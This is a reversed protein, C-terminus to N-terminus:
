PCRYLQSVVSAFTRQRHLQWGPRTLTTHNSAKPSEVYVLAGASLWANEALASLAREALTSNFPPDIFVIDFRRTGAINGDLWGLADQHIIDLESTNADLLDRNQRLAHFAVPNQEILTVQHAGRSAAEFGLVGSGAFLDLCTAGPLDLQLWNFLTERVRDGTPRLGELTPFSLRRGRWKGGIIRIQGAQSVPKKQRRPM